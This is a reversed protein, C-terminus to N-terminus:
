VALRPINIGLNPIDQELYTRIYNQRWQNSLQDNEALYALPFGGRLWLKDLDPVEGFSFPTLEMYHIRGALSESSQRILETSASGLILYQQDHQERDVLVRLVPFLDPVRQIEDIVILDNLSALGLWPDHLRALDNPNELDFYNEPVGGEQKFYARALTTKGCQRPGLMAVIPNTKFGQEIQLLNFNRHM